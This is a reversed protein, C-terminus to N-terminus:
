LTKWVYNKKFKLNGGMVFVLNKKMFCCRWKRMIIQFASIMQSWVRYANGRFADDNYDDDDDCWYNFSCKINVTHVVREFLYQNLLNWSAHRSVEDQQLERECM